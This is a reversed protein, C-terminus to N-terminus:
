EEIEEDKFFQELKYKENDVLRELLDDKLMNQEVTVGEKKAVDLLELRTMRKLNTIISVTFKKKMFVNIDIIKWGRKEQIESISEVPLIGHRPHQIYDM